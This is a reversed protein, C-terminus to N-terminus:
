LIGHSYDNQSWDIERAEGVVSNCLIEQVKQRQYELVYTTGNEWLDSEQLNLLLCICIRLNKDFHTLKINMTM